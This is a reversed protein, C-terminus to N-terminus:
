VSSAQAGPPRKRVALVDVAQEVETVPYVVIRWRDLRLRRLEVGPEALDLAKSAAPRPNEALSDIAKRARQRVNGPLANIESWADRSVFVTYASM